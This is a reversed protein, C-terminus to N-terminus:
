LFGAVGPRGARCDWGLVGKIPPLEPLEPRPLNLSLLRQQEALSKYKYDFISKKVGYYYMERM